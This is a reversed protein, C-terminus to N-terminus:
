SASVNRTQRTKRWRQRSISDLINTFGEDRLLLDFEQPTIALLRAHTSAETRVVRSHSLELLAECEVTACTFCIKLAEADSVPTSILRSVRERVATVALAAHSAM